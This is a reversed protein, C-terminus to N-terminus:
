GNDASVQYSEIFKLQEKVMKQSTICIQDNSKSYRLENLAKKKDWIGRFYMDVIKFVDDDAVNGLIIDYKTYVPKGDRCDCVFDLWQENEGNFKLIQFNTFDDILEYVNVIAKGKQRIAKRLAWKEAQEKFTTLYFGRGFDLYNKSFAIDPEKVEISSGHYVIM